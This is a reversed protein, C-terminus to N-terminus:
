EEQAQPKTWNDSEQVKTEIAAWEGRCAKIRKRIMNKKM